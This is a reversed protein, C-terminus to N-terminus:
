ISDSISKFLKEIEKGSMAKIAKESLVSFEDKNEKEFLWVSNNTKDSKVETAVRGNPITVMFYNFFANFEDINLDSLAKKWQAIIQENLGSLVNKNKSLQKDLEGLLKKEKTKRLIYITSFYGVSVITPVFIIILVNKVIRNM